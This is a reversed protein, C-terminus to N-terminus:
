EYLQVLEKRIKNWKELENEDHKCLNIILDISLVCCRVIQNNLIEPYDCDIIKKFSDYIEISKSSQM